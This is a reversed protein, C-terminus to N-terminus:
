CGENGRRRTVKVDWDGVYRTATEEHAHQKAVALAEDRDMDAVYPESPYRKGHDWIAPSWGKRRECVGYQIRIPVLDPVKRRKAM